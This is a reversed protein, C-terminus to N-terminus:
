VSTLMNKQLQLFTNVLGLLFTSFKILVLLQFHTCVILYKGLGAVIQAYVNTQTTDQTQIDQLVRLIIQLKVEPTPTVPGVVSKQKVAM